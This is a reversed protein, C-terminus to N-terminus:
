SMASTSMDVYCPVLLRVTHTQEMADEHYALSWMCWSFMSTPLEDPEGKAHRKSVMAGAGSSYM